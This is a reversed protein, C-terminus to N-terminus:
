EAAVMVTAKREAKGWGVLRGMLASVVSKAVVYNMLQRYGFRQVVLWWLLGWNEKREFAMAIAAASLDIAM